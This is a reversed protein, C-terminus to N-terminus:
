NLLSDEFSFWKVECWCRDHPWCHLEVAVIFPMYWEFTNPIYGKYWSVFSCDTKWTSFLIATLSPTPASYLVLLSINTSLFLEYDCLTAYYLYVITLIFLKYINLYNEIICRVKGKQINQINQFMTPANFARCLAVMEYACCGFSWIDAQM